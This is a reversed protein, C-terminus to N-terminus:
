MTYVAGLCHSSPHAVINTINTYYSELYEVASFLIKAVDIVVEALDYVVEGVDVIEGIVPIEEM